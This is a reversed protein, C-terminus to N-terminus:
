SRVLDRLVPVLAAAAERHVAPGPMGAAAAREHPPFCMGATGLSWAGTSAVVEVTATVHPRLAAIMQSDVRMLEADCASGHPLPPRDSLWLLVKPAPLLALLSQMRALWAARVEAELLPFKIPAARALTGVMHRTFTFETFDVERFLSQMLPTAKLFRDNRRPHVSYFRNTVNQASTVQVVTACAQRAVDLTAPDNLYADPGAQPVGLNVAVRGIGAECLAPFPMPIYKGYTETGGLFAVYPQHLDQRPGRFLLRSRGYRCPFYDLPGSGARVFAM